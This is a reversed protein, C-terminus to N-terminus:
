LILVATEVILMQNSISRNSELDNWGVEYDGIIKVHESKDTWACASITLLAVIALIITRHQLTRM